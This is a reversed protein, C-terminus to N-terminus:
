RCIAASDSHRRACGGVMQGEPDHFSFAVDNGTDETMASVMSRFRDLFVAKRAVFLPMDKKSFQLMVVIRSADLKVNVLTFVGLDCLSQAEERASVPAEVRCPEDPESSSGSKAAADAQAAAELATTTGPSKQADMWMFTGIMVPVAMFAIVVTKWGVAKSETM